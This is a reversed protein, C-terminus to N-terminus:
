DVGSRVTQKGFLLQLGNMSGPMKLDILALDYPKSELCLLAEDANAATAVTYGHFVLGDRIVTRVTEEDDVILIHKNMM